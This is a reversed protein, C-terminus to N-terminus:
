TTRTHRKVIRASYGMILMQIQELETDTVGLNKLRKRTSKPTTGMSGFVIGKIYIEDVNMDEKMRKMKNYKQEKGMERDKLYKEYKEYPITVDLIYAKRDKKVVLDPKMRENGVMWVKERTVDFKRDKLIKGLKDCVADHRKSIADKNITCSSLIHMDTEATQKCWRCKKRSQDANGRTKNIKTPITGSLARWCQIKEGTALNGSRWMWNRKTTNADVMTLLAEGNTINRVKTKNEVDIM